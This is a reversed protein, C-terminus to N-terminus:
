AARNIDEYKYRYYIKNIQIAELRAKVHGHNSREVYYNYINPLSNKHGLIDKLIKQTKLIGKLSLSRDQGYEAMKPHPLM